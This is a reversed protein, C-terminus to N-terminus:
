PNLAITDTAFGMAHFLTNIASRKDPNLLSGGWEYFAEFKVWNPKCVTNVARMSEVMYVLIAYFIWGRTRLFVYLIKHNRAMLAFFVFIASLKSAFSLSM